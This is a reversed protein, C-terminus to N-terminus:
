DGQWDYHMGEGKLRLADRAQKERWSAQAIASVRSSLKRDKERRAAAFDKVEGCKRCTGVDRNDIVWYHVCKSTLKEGEKVMLKASNDV